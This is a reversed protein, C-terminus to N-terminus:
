REDDVFIEYYSVLSAAYFMMWFFFEEFPYTLGFFSVWGVYNNGTYIWYNFAVAFIEFVFYFFFFYIATLALKKILEPRKYCLVLVPIIAAIGMYLYPYRTILLSPSSLYIAVLVVAAFIGPFIAYVLNRSIHHNIQRDIFHEYFVVTFMTMLMYGLINDIPDIGLIKYPFVLNITNWTHTYEAIFDLVFAFLGGFLFTSILIKPWNKKKRLSLYITPPITFACGVILPKGFFSGATIYACLSALALLAILVLIDVRKKKLNKM